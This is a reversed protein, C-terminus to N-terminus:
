DRWFRPAFLVLVTFLELRGVLMGFALIWKAPDPLSAFNGAPGIIEGLGPGVNAMAQAVGSISTIFDAGTLGVCASLVGFTAIYMGTFGLVSLILDDTLPQGNYVRAFVGRPQVLKRLYDRMTIAMVELRFMKIGGATSGSCGGLFTIILFVFNVFGGWQSYDTTAYGTTTTISVVNFTALRV